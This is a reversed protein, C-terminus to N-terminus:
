ALVAGALRRENLKEASDILGVASTDADPALFHVDGMGTTSLREPDGGNVLLM